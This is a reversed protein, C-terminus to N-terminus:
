ILGICNIRSDWYEAYMEKIELEVNFIRKFEEFNVTNEAVRESEYIRARGLKETFLDTYKKRRSTYYRYTYKKLFLGNSKDIIVWFTNM